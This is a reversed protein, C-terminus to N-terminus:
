RIDEKTKKNILRYILYGGGIIISALSYWQGNSLGLAGKETNRIFEVFFRLVGYMVLFVPYLKGKPDKKREWELLIFLIIFDGASEIAQAPWTFSGTASRVTIGGCCGNFFCGVRMFGIMIAVGPAAFDLSKLPRLKLLLGALPIFLMILWVSGYFSLGGITVGLLKVLEINELLYLIKAGLVGFVAMLVSFIISRPITTGFRKRRLVLLVTMAIFGIVFM